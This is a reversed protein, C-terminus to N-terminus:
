LAFNKVLKINFYYLQCLYNQPFFFTFTSYSFFLLFYYMTLSFFFFFFTILFLLFLSVVNYKVLTCSLL